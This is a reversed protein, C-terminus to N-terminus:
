VKAGRVCRCSTCRRNQNQSMELQARKERLCRDIVGETFGEDGGLKLALGAGILQKLTQVFAFCATPAFRISCSLNLGECRKSNALCNQAKLALVLVFGAGLLELLLLLFAM